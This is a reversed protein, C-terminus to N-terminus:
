ILLQTYIYIHNYIILFLIHLRSFFFFFFIRIHFKYKSQVSDIQKERCFTFWKKIFTIYQKQTGKCWSALLINTVKVSINRDKFSRRIALLGDTTIQTDASTEQGFEGIDTPQGIEATSLSLRHIIDVIRHVLTSNDVISSGSHM